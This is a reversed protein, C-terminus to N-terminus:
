NACSLNTSLSNPLSWITPSPNTPSVRLDAGPGPRRQVVRIHNEQQMIGPEWLPKSLNTTAAVRRCIVKGHEARKLLHAPILMSLGCCGTEGPLRTPGSLHPSIRCAGPCGHGKLEATSVRRHKRTRRLFFSLPAAASCFTPATTIGYINVTVKGKVLMVILGKHLLLSM